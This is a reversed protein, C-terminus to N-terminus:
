PRDEITVFGIMPAVTVGPQSLLRWTEVAPRHQASGGSTLRRHPRPVGSTSQYAATRHCGHSCPWEGASSASGSGSSTSMSTHPASRTRSKSASASPWRSPPTTIPGSGPPGKSWAGLRWGPSWVSRLRPPSARARGLCAWSGLSRLWGAVVVSSAQLLGVAAGDVLRRVVWNLQAATDAARNEALRGLTDRLGEVTGPEGGTFRYLREDALIAAMEDTDDATLPVLVLRTTRIREDVPFQSTM